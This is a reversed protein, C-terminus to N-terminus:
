GEVNCRAVQLSDLRKLGLDALDPDSNAQVSKRRFIQMLQIALSRTDHKLMIRVVLQPSGSALGPLPLRLFPEIGDKSAELLVVRVQIIVNAGHLNTIEKIDGKIPLGCNRPLTFALRVRRAIEHPILTKHM